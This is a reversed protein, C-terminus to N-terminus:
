KASQVNNNSIQNKSVDDDFTYLNNKLIKKM